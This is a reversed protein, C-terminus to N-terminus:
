SKLSGVLRLWGMDCSGARYTEKLPKKQLSLCVCVCRYVCVCVYRYWKSLNRNNMHTVHGMRIHSIVGEHSCLGMWIHSMPHYFYHAAVRTSNMHKYTHCPTASIATHVFVWEYTHCLTNSTTHSSERLTWASMHKVYTPPFLKLLSALHQTSIIM